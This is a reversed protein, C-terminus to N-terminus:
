PVGPCRVRLETGSHRLTLAELTCPEDFEITLEGVSPVPYAMVRVDSPPAPEPATPTAHDCGAVFLLAVLHSARSTTM